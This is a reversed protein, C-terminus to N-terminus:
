SIAGIQEDAREVARQARYIRAYLGGARMLEDHTGRGVVRGGDLVVVLDVRPFAALRHSCFLITTRREPPATPGFAERLGAVIAAETGLDVASFPDDLVLLGPSRGDSAAIARALAIRQRQGGSVRIGLEGIETALGAPFTGVDEELAALRIADSLRDACEGDRDSPSLLVNERVTGSFLYADQPLYGTRAAREATPVVELPLADFLVRGAELPYLGLIARALASKGAAVPGTVAVLAGAPIDLSVDRLAPTTSGPYRLTVRDLSV